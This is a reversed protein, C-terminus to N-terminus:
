LKRCRLSGPHQLGEVEICLTPRAIDEDCESPRRGVSSSRRLDKLWVRSVRGRDTCRGRTQLSGAGFAPALFSPSSSPGPERRPRRTFVMVDRSPPM